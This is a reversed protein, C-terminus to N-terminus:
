LLEVQFARGSANLVGELIGQISMQVQYSQQLQLLMQAMTSIQIDADFGVVADRIDTLLSSHLYVQQSVSNMYAELASATEETIGQIGQQLASLDATSGGGVVDLLRNREALARNVIDMYEQRLVEVDGDSLSDDSIREQFHKYWTELENAYTGVLMSRIIANRMYEEFNEAFTEATSDMDQLMSEFDNTLDDLSMNTLAEALADTYEQAKDVGYEIIGELAERIQSSMKSWEVPVGEMVAKLEEPTLWFLDQVSTVTKGILSSIKEWSGALAKNTRYAYSHSGASSGSEGAAVALQRYSAIILDNNEKLERYKRVATSGTMKGLAELQAQAVKGMVDTLAELQEKLPTFTDKKGGFVGALFNIATLAAQIIALIAVSREGKKIAEYATTMSVAISFGAQIAQNATEGLANQLNTMINYFEQVKEIGNRINEYLDGQADNLEREAQNVKKTKVRVNEQAKGMKYYNGTLKSLINKTKAIALEAQAKKLKDTKNKVNQLSDALTAFPNRSVLNQRMKEIAENIDKVETASLEPHLAIFEQMDSILKRLAKSTLNASDGMAAIWDDGKKYEEFSLKASEENEKRMISVAIRAAQEDDKTIDSVVSEIEGKLRNIEAPDDSADIKTRIRAVYNKQEKSGLKNVLDIREKLADQSIQRRRYEFEAYKRLLENWAKVQNKAEDLRVKNVWEVYKSLEQMLNDTMEQGNEKAWEAFNNKDLNKRLDFAKIIGNDRFVNNIRRQAEDAVQEYTKPVNSLAEKDIGMMDMFIDGLEPNADLEVALEYEDKLKGLENKLSDTFTKQDFTISDIKLDKLKVQLDKIESPKVKGSQVLTDLQNQLMNMIERPNSVGAYKKIDLPAIGYKTLVSNITSITEDYGSTAEQLAKSSDVGEKTLTKYSSRVKDILSLEDKLAKQVESEAERQARAREKAAKASASASKKEDQAEKKSQGGKEISTQEKYDKWANDLETRTNVLQQHLKSVTAEAGAAVLEKERKELRKIQNYAADALSDAETLTDFVSKGDVTSITLPIFISWQNASTIYSKLTNFVDEYAMNHEKAYKRALDDVWKFYDGKQFDLSKIQEADMNRFMATIEHIHQEKMWKTFDEWYVRSKGNYKEWNSLREQDARLSEAVQEDYAIKLAQKEDQIRIELARRAAQSRAEEVGMQMIFADQPNIQNDTIFKNTIFSFAENIKTENGSWGKGNIFAIISDTFKTLDKQFHAAEQSLNAMDSAADESANHQASYLSGWSKTVNDIAKSYDKLNDVLGDPLLWLNWWKSKDGSIKFTNDDVEKLAANVANVDELVAFGQRLRESINTIQLLNGIYRESSNTTLEIQERVAEWAKKAEDTNIDQRTNDDKYLSNRIEGYQELFKSINNFNDATGSRVAENFEKTAKSANLVLTDFAEWVALGLLAGWALKSTFITRISAGITRLVDALRKGFVVNLSMQKTTFGVANGLRLYAYAALMAATRIGIIWAANKILNDLQRWHLFMERLAGIGFTLVGQTDKGIENLMNNWALTLNALRVKLTDAMKAQFDFFKGGEDTMKNIVQMVDNYGVAKKKIRDYVDATSVLKGELETYYDALQKVLPIGANAFMRNDRSNLYGYAKIQGLAYTLREIPIGVAAAMDALRRTTDVVDRAAIDYATLQKAAASLEILTYPSVLAMQSLENFIQTGREASNILIGLARENMEYQSRIDILQKVFQTSAGVTFYFALRNKMYNWSRGLANNLSTAQRTTAMYKNLDRTLRNIETDVARIEKESKPDTINIGRKYSQLQQIKYALDDLTKVPLNKVLQFNIPREAEKRVQQVDRKVTQLINRLERGFESNRQTKTLKAWAEQLQSVYATMSKLSSGTSNIEGKSIGLTESLKNFFNYSDGSKKNSNSQRNLEKRMQLLRNYTEEHERYISQIQQEITLGKAREDNEAYIYKTSMKGDSTYFKGLFAEKQGSSSLYARINEAIQKTTVELQKANSMEVSQTQAHRTQEESQAKMTRLIQEELTGLERRQQKTASIRETDYFVNGNLVAFGSEKWSQSERILKAQKSIEDTKTREAQAQQNSLTTMERSGASLEILSQKQIDYQEKKAALAQRDAEAIQRTSMIQEKELQVIRQQSAYIEDVTQKILLRNGKPERGLENLQQRLEAIKQRVQEIQREYQMYASFQRDLSLSPMSKIEKSLLAVNERMRKVINYYSEQASSPKYAEKVAKAQQDLTSVLEKRADTERKVSSARRSSGGDASGGMDVKTSGLEQLGKKMHAITSDFSSKIKGLNDDIKKVLQNVSKELEESNLSAAIITADVM